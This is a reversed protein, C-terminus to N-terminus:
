LMVGENAAGVAWCQITRHFIERRVVVAWDCEEPSIAVSAGAVVRLYQSMMRRRPRAVFFRKGDAALYYPSDGVCLDAVEQWSDLVSLALGDRSMRGIIPEVTLPLVHLHAHSICATPMIPASGHELITFGGFIHTYLQLFRVLFAHFDCDPDALTQAGSLYHRRPCVLVHGVVLPSLDVIAVSDATQALCRTSLASYTRSFETDRAGSFEACLDSRDCTAASGM